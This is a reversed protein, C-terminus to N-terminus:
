LTCHDLVNIRTYIEAHVSPSTLSTFLSSNSRTSTQMPSIHVDTHSLSHSLKSAVTTQLCSPNFEFSHSYLYDLVSQVSNREYILM